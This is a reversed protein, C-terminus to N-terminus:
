ASKPSSTPDPKSRSAEGPRSDQKGKHNSSRWFSNSKHRSAGNGENKKDTQHASSQKDSVPRSNSDHHTTKSSKTNRVCAEFYHDAMVKVKALSDAKDMKLRAVLDDPCSKVFQARLVLDRVGEVTNEAGDKERWQDFYGTLRAAFQSPTEDKKLEASFYQRKLEEVSLGFAELLAKKMDAYERASADLRHLVELARGEFLTLFQVRKTTDDYQMLEAAEEFRKIFIEIKEGEKFTPLKIKPMRNAPSNCQVSNNSGNQAHLEALRLEQEHKAKLEILKMEQLKLEHVERERERALADAQRQRNLIFTAADDGHLELSDAEEKWVSFSM